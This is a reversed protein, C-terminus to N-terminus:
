IKQQLSLYVCWFQHPNSLIHNVRRAAVKMPCFNTRAVYHHITEGMCGNKNTIKITCLDSTLIVKLPSYRLPIIGNEFFGIYNVTFQIPKTARKKMM